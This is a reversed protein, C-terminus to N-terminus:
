VPVNVPVILALSIMLVLVDVMVLLVMGVIVMAAVLDVNELAILATSDRTVYVIV